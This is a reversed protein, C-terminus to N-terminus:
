SFTGKADRMHGGYGTEPGDYDAWVAVPYLCNGCVLNRPHQPVLVLYKTPTMSKPKFLRKGCMTCYFDNDYVSKRWIIANQIM